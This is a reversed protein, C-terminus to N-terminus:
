WDTIKQINRGSYSKILSLADDLSGGYGISIKDDFFTGAKIKYIYYKSGSKSVQYLNQGGGSVVVRKKM